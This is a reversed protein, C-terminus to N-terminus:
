GNKRGTTVLNWVGALGRIAFALVFFAAVLGIGGLVLGGAITFM